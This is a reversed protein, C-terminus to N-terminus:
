ATVPEVLFQKAKPCQIMVRTQDRGHVEVVKGCLYGHRDTTAEFSSRPSGCDECSALRQQMEDWEIM